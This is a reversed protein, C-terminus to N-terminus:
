LSSELIKTEKLFVSTNCSHAKMKIEPTLIGSQGLLQSQNAEQELLSATKGDASLKKM